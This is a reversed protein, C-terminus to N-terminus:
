IYNCISRGLTGTNRLTVPKYSTSYLITTAQLFPQIYVRLLYALHKIDWQKFFIDGGEIKAMKNVTVTLIFLIAEPLQRSFLPFISLKGKQNIAISTIHIIISLLYPMNLLFFCFLFSRLLSDICWYLMHKDKKIFYYKHQFNIKNGALILMASYM